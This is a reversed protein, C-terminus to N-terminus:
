QSLAKLKIKSHKFSLMSGWNFLGSTGIHAWKNGNKHVYRGYIGNSDIKSVRVLFTSYNMTVLLLDGIKM